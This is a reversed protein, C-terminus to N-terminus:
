GRPECPIRLDRAIRRPVDPVPCDFSSGATVFRWGSRRKRFVAVGDAAYRRCSAKRVRMRAASWRRSVTSVRVRACREPVGIAKAVQARERKTAPRDAAAPAAPVLALLLVAYPLIRRM